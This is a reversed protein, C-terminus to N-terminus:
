ASSTKLQKKRTNSAAVCATIRKELGAATLNPSDYITNISAGAGLGVKFLAANEANSIITDQGISAEFWSVPATSKRVLKGVKKTTADLAKKSAALAELQAKTYGLKVQYLKHPFAIPIADHTIRMVIDAHNLDTNTLVRTPTEITTADMTLLGARASLFLDRKVVKQQM